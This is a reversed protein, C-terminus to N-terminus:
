PTKLLISVSDLSRANVFPTVDVRPYLGRHRAVGEVRGILLGRPVGTAPDATTVVTAGQEVLAEGSIWKLVSGRDGTGELVGIESKSLEVSGDYSRPLAVAGIRFGSDTALLVRCTFPSAEIVRGILHKEWLVLMGRAVGHSTGRALVMSRRWGSSDANVVVDAPLLVYRPDALVGRTGSVQELRGQLDSVRASLEQVRGKLHDLKVTDTDAATAQPVFREIFGTVGNAVSRVPIFAALVLLRPKHTIAGPLMLLVLSVAALVVPTGRLAKWRSM